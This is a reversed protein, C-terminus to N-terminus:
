LCCLATVIIYSKAATSKESLQKVVVVYVNCSSVSNLKWVVGVQRDCVFVCASQLRSM